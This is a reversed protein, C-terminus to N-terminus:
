RLQDRLRTSNEVAPGDLLTSVGDLILNIRASLAERQEDQDVIETVIEHHRRRPTELVELQNHSELLPDSQDALGSLEDTVGAMASAVVVAPVGQDRVICAMARLRRASDVSTGGFKHVRLSSTARESPVPETVSKM